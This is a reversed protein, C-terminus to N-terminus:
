SEFIGLFRQQISLWIEYICTKWGLLVCILIAGVMLVGICGGIMSVILLIFYNWIDYTALVAIFCNVAEYIPVCYEICLKYIFAYLTSFAFGLLTSTLLISIM